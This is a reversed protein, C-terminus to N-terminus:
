GGIKKLETYIAKSQSTAKNGNCFVDCVAEAICESNNTKAYGSIKGAWSKGGKGGTNKYANNVIRRAATDYDLGMKEAVMGTIAHGMEHATVAEVADRNGRSPHFTKDSDYVTNMKNINTYNTNLSVSRSLRDYYGLTSADKGGLTAANVSTVHQMLDPFEEQLNRAATNISDVFPANNRNHRYSWVDTENLINARSLGGGGSGLGAGRGGFFQLDYKIM